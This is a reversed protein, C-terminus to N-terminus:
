FLFSPLLRRPTSACPLVLCTHGPPVQMAVYVAWECAGGVLQLQAILDLHVAGLVSSAAEDEEVRGGGGGPLAGIAPLATLVHWGLGADLPNASHAAAQLLAALAECRVPANAGGREEASAWLDLLELHIDTAAGVDQEHLQAAAAAGRGLLATATRRDAYLPLPRPARLDARVAQHLLAVARAPSAATPTAHWLLLGLYRRWDLELRDRVEDVQGALLRYVLLRDAEIGRLMDNAAWVALQASADRAAADRSGSGAQAVLTALRVNGAAAAVAAAAATQQACLLRLVAACPGEDGGGGAQLEAESLPLAQRRLWQSVARRRRFAALASAKAPMRDAAADEDEEAGAGTGWTERGAAEDGGEEGDVHEWLAQVLRWTEAEHRLQMLRRAAAGGEDAMLGAAEAEPGAVYQSVLLPLGRTDCRLSWQPVVCRSAGAGSMASDGGADLDSPPVETAASSHGLHIELAAVLRRRMAARPGEAAAATTQDPGRGSGPTSVAPAADSGAGEVPVRRTCVAHCGVVNRPFM